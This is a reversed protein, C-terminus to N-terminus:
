SEDWLGLKTKLSLTEPAATFWGWGFPTDHFDYVLYELRFVPTGESQNLLGAEEHNLVTPIVTLEGKKATSGGHGNFLDSLPGVSLEAEVVPRTPDCRIRGEHFMVPRNDRLLLRRILIIRVGVPLGLMEATKADARALSIQLVKIRTREPDQFIEKISDLDFRSGTLTVPKVFSGSGRIREILGQEILVGIAQRVTMVSLGYQRSISSESPIKEGPPYMGGAIQRRLIAALQAYAPEFRDKNIRDPM